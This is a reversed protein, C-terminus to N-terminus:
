FNIGAVEDCFTTLKQSRDPLTAMATHDNRPKYVETVANHLRWINHGQAFEEHSPNDWEEIVRGGQSPSIAGRRILEVIAADGVRSKIEFRKYTDFREHQHEILRKTGFVASHTLEPLRNLMNTTQKTGIKVEGSFCLNDCVFVGSGAVLGAAISQDHSARIGIVTSYDEPNYGNVIEMLGFFRSGDHTAGFQAQVIKLGNDALRDEVLNIFDSHPIPNHRAGLIEPERTLVEDNREVREAGCHLMLNLNSM